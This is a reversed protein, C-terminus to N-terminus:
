YARCNKEDNNKIQRNNRPISGCFIFSSSHMTKAAKGFYEIEQLQKRYANRVTKEAMKHYLYCSKQNM